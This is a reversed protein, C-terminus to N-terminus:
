KNALEKVKEMFKEWDKEDVTAGAAAEHGGGAAKLGRTALQMIKGANMNKKQNRASVKITKGTKTYVIVLKDHYKESIKTSIPSILNYTSKLNYVVIKGSKDINKEADLMISLTENEIEQYARILKDGGRVDELKQPDNVKLFLEVMEECSLMKTARAASIMDAIRGFFSDYLPKEIKYKKKAAEVLDKSDDLNYDSVIGTTAAWLYESM